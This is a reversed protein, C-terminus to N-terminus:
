DNTECIPYGLQNTQLQIDALNSSRDMQVEFPRKHVPLSIQFLVFTM